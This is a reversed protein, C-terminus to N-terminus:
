NGSMSPVPTPRDKDFVTNVDFLDSLYDVSDDIMDYYMRYGDLNRRGMRFYDSKLQVWYKASDVNCFYDFGKAKLYEYREGSYGRWDCIDSGFPFIYVDTDGVLSEVEAQWKDTDEIFWEMSTTQMNRHGYSHSAFEWGDAKLGDAVAKATVRDQEYTPSTAAYSSATRYGLIGNYGTLAIIGKAGKYSFDPHKEIFADLIPVVDYAGTTVTGDDTTLQCTPKGNEDLVIKDPFGDDEMYEYYSLDDQSLVFPKKGPPLMITGAKMTVTGDDAVQKEALDHISVLVYGKEYMQELIKNFEDITTMVQNYDDMKYDNDFVKEKNVILSHFFIHPTTTVDAKVLTSKTAECNTIVSVMDDYNEYGAYSKIKEIAADYDYGAALADAEAIIGQRVTEESDVTADVKTNQSEAAVNTGSAFKLLGNERAIVVAVCVVLLAMVACLIKLRLERNTKSKGNMSSDVQKNKNDQMKAGERGKNQSYLNEQTRNILEVQKIIDSIEEKKEEKKSLNEEKVLKIYGEELKIKESEIQRQKRQERQTKVSEMVAKAEELKEKQIRKSDLKEKDKIYTESKVLKQSIKPNLSQSVTNEPLSNQEKFERLQTKIEDETKKRVQKDLEMKKIKMLEKKSYETDRKDSERQRSHLSKGVEDDINKSNDSRGKFLLSYYDISEYLCLTYKEADINILSYKNQDCSNVREKDMVNGM